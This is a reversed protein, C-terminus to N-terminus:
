FLLIIISSFLSPFGVLGSLSLCHALGIVGVDADAEHGVFVGRFPIGATDTGVILRSLQAQMQIDGVLLCFPLQSLQHEAGALHGIDDALIVIAVGGHVHEGGEEILSSSGEWKPPIYIQIYLM